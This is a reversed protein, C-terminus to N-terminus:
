LPLSMSVIEKSPPRVGMADKANIEINDLTDANEYANEDSKKPRNPKPNPSSTKKLFIADNNLGRLTEYEANNSAM